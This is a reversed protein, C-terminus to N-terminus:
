IGACAENHDEDIKTGTGYWFLGLSSQAEMPPCGALTLDNGRHCHGGACVRHLKLSRNFENITGIKEMAKVSGIEHNPVEGRNKMGERKNATASPDDPNVKIGNLLM